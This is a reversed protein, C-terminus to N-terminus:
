PLTVHFVFDGDETLLDGLKSRGQLREGIDRALEANESPERDGRDLDIDPDREEVHRLAEEGDTAEVVELADIGELRRVAHERDIPEDDVILIKPM